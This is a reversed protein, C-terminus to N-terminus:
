DFVKIKNSSYDKLINIWIQSFETPTVKRKEIATLGFEDTTTEPDFKTGINKVVKVSSNIKPMPHDIESRGLTLLINGEVLGKRNAQSHRFLRFSAELDKPRLRMCGHSDFARKFVANQQIHLGIQSWGGFRWTDKRFRIFPRGQYYSEDDRHAWSVGELSQDLFQEKYIPTMLQNVGKETVGLDLAGVGVPFVIKFNKDNEDEIILRREKLGVTFRYKSHSILKIDQNRIQFDLRKAKRDFELETIYILHSNDSDSAAFKDTSNGFHYMSTDVSDGFSKEVVSGVILKIKNPKRIDYVPKSILFNIHSMVEKSGFYFEKYRNMRLSLQSLFSNNEPSFKVIDELRVGIVNKSFSKIVFERPKSKFTRLNAKPKDSPSLIKINNKSVESTILINEKAVKIKRDKQKLVVLEDEIDINLPDTSSKEISKTPLDDNSSSEEVITDNDLNQWDSEKSREGLPKDRKVVPSKDENKEQECSILFFISIFFISLIKMLRVWYLYNSVKNAVLEIGIIRIFYFTKYEYTHIFISKSYFTQVFHPRKYHSSNSTLKSSDNLQRNSAMKISM